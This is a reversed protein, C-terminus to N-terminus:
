IEGYIDTRRQKWLPMQERVADVIGVDIDTLCFTLEQDSCQAVVNGYPDVIMSHGYSHRSMLIIEFDREGKGRRM